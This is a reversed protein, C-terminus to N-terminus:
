IQHKTQAATQKTMLIHAHSVDCQTGWEFVTSSLSILTLYEDSLEYEHLVKCVAVWALAVGSGSDSQSSDQWLSSLVEESVKRVGAGEQGETSASTNKSTSFTRIDTIHGDHRWHSRWHRYAKAVCRTGTNTQDPCLLSGHSAVTQGRDKFPKIYKKVKNLALSAKEAQKGKKDKRWTGKWHGSKWTCKADDLDDRCYTSEIIIIDGSCLRWM